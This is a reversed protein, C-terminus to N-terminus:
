KMLDPVPMVPPMDSGPRIVCIRNDKEEFKGGGMNNRIFPVNERVFFENSEVTGNPCESSSFTGSLDDYSLNNRFVSNVAEGLCFMMCGGENFYSYNDHYVAGDGSDADYAMGDQNLSTSSVYNSCIDAALCKWAWLGAAVKGMRDEPYRYWRDNMEVAAYEVTNHRMVPELAYMATIGDGGTCATYCDEILMNVNGYKLFAEKKLYAESFDAHRYTYGAAIGWRSVNYVTCHSIILTDFRAPGTEDEDDPKSASVYIGGNNMHKNYVNGDVDHIVLDRLIISHLTGRDKAIVSVGTRDMRHAETYEEDSMTTTNTIEIDEVTIYECDYLLVSSSVNGKYVHCPNDLPIGYDQYWIGKGATDIRPLEGSGYSSILIPRDETGCSSIHLAEGTFVSGCELLVSDGPCLASTDLESLKLFPASPSRGDNGRRGNLSSIYYTKGSLSKM